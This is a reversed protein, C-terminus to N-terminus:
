DSAARFHRRIQDEPEKRDLYDRWSTVLGGDDVEIITAGHMEIRAGAGPGYDSPSYTARGIWEFVAWGDSGRISTIEQSWDPFIRRTDRSIAALDGTPTTTAPDSFLAGNAFLQKWDAGGGVTLAKEARRAWQDWDVAGFSLASAVEASKSAFEAV